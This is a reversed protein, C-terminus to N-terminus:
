LEVIDMFGPAARFNWAVYTRGSQNAYSRGSEVQFGNNDFSFVCSGLSDSLGGILNTSLIERYGDPYGDPPAPRVTDFLAHDMGSTGSTGGSTRSKIWILSKDSNDIGTEIVGSTGGNYTATSFAPTLAGYTGSTSEGKVTQGATFTESIPQGMDVGNANNYTNSDTLTLTSLNSGLIELLLTHMEIEIGGIAIYANGNANTNYLNISTVDADARTRFDLVQSTGNCNMNTGGFGDSYIIQVQGGTLSDLVHINVLASRPFPNPLSYKYNQSPDISVYLYVNGSEDM